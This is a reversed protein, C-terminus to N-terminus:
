AEPTLTGPADPEAPATDAPRDSTTGLTTHLYADAANSANRLYAAAKPIEIAFHDRLTDLPRAMPATVAEFDRLWKKITRLKGEAEEVAARAKRAARQQLTLDNKMTSLRAQFLEQEAREMIRSRRRLEQQWHSTQEGELWQRTRKVEHDASDLVQTAKAGYLLLATRFEELSEVSAIHAGRNM